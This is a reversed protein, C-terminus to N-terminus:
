VRKAEALVHRHRGGVEVITQDRELVALHDQQADGVWEAEVGLAEVATDVIRVGSPFASPQPRGGAVARGPEHFAALALPGDGDVELKAGVRERVSPLGDEADGVATEPARHRMSYLRTMRARRTRGTSPATRTSTASM